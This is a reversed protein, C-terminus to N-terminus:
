KLLKQEAMANVTVGIYSKIQEQDSGLIEVESVTSWILKDNRANYLNTEILAYEEEATYGPTYVVQSGYAYYDRWNGYDDPITSFRGHFHTPKSKKSILRSILVADANQEQMHAAIVAHDGQKKDLLYIHSAVADTGRAKLQRVFEDEFIRKNVTKKAVGIVIIKRPSDQYSPDKWASTLTKTACATVLLAILVCFITSRQLTLMM